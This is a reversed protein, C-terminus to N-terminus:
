TGRGSSPRGYSPGNTVLEPSWANNESGSSSTSSSAPVAHSNERSSISPTTSVSNMSSAPWTESASASASAGARPVDDQEAVRLLERWTECPIWGAPACADHELVQEALSVTGGSRPRNRECVHRICGSTHRKM